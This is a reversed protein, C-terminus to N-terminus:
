QLCPQEQPIERIAVLFIEKQCDCAIHPYQSAIQSYAACIGYAHINIVSDSVEFQYCMLLPFTKMPIRM